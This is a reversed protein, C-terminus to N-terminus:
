ELFFCLFRRKRSQAKDVLCYLQVRIVDASFREKIFACACVYSEFVQAKVTCVTRYYVAIGGIQTYRLCSYM